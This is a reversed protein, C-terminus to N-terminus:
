GDPRLRGAGASRLVCFFCTTTQQNHFELQQHKQNQFEHQQLKQNQFLHEGRLHRGSILATAGLLRLHFQLVALGERKM